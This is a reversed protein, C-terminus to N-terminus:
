VSYRNSIWEYIQEAIIRYGLYNPHYDGVRLGTEDEWVRRSQYEWVSINNIMEYDSLLDSMCQGVEIFNTTNVYDISDSDFTNYFSNFYLHNYGELTQEMDTYVEVPDSDRYPYSLMILFIDDKKVFGSRITDQILQLIKRNGIGCEGFNIAPIRMLSSLQSPWSNQERLKDIFQPPKPNEKYDIDTEVGHGKTWSDGFALIRSM